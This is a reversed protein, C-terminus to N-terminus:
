PLLHVGLGWNSKAVDKMEQLMFVFAISIKKASSNYVANSKLHFYKKAFRM